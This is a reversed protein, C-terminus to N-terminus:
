LNWGALASSKMPLDNASSPWTVASTFLQESVISKFLQLTEEDIATRASKVQRGTPM